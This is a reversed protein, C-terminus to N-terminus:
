SLQMPLFMLWSASNSIRIHQWALEVCVSLEGAMHALLPPNGQKAQGTVQTMGAAVLETMATMTPAARVVRM